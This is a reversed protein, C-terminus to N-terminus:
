YITKVYIETNGWTPYDVGLEWGQSEGFHSWEPKPDGNHKIPKKPEDGFNENFGM